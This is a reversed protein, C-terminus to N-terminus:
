SDVAKLLNGFCDKKPPRRKFGMKHVFDIPLDHLWDVLETDNGVGCLLGSVIAALM